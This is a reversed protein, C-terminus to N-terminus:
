RSRLNWPSGFRTQRSDWPTAAAKMRLGRKPNWSWSCCRGSAPTGILSKTASSKKRRAASLSGVSFARAHIPAMFTARKAAAAFGKVRYANYWQPSLNMLVATGKGFKHTHAAGMNRVAKDFGSADKILDNNNTLLQEYSKYGYNADQDTECWLRGGFLDRSKLRPDHRLGFMDDLVGGAVRGKGHQDWLGPLFDAIVTGGSSCFEKIRRAEVDSLCFVAPLVLVKSKSPVGRQILDAYSLWGFQIGEDRLMNIWAHRVLQSTGHDGDVNRNIWTKGHAEADMIWAMQISAQSYYLTVGDDIWEAGTLKRGIRDAAKWHEGVRAIWPKPTQGDFWNEVWGIFGKNGNALYKWTQWIADAESTYFFSTVAPLANHPNLGRIVSQSDGINYAELYQVKRMIKAYDYGGFADPSQGGVFGCPTAPDLTNAYQVLDGVFNNWYSDNFTWQDMLQSADFHAVDWERLKPLIDQYSIWTTWKPKDTGYIEQQWKPYAQTDDTVQWMCPHIFHGWSIEDDLAYAGRNPSARVEGISQRLLRELRTKMEANVPKLRVGTGHIRDKNRNLYDGEGLHLDGKGASHDMYFRLRFRDIWDLRGSAGRDCFSGNMGHELQLKGSEATFGLPWQYYWPM